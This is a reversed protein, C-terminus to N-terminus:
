LCQGDMRSQSRRTGVFKITMWLGVCFAGLVVHLVCKDLRVKQTMPVSRGHSYWMGLDEAPLIAGRIRIRRKKFKPHRQQGRVAQVMKRTM